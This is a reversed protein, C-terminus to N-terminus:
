KNPKDHQIIRKINYKPIRGPKGHKRSYKWTSYPIGLSDAAEKGYSFWKTTGDEFEVTVPKATRNLGPNNAIPNNERMRKSIKARSEKTNMPNWGEKFRLKTAISQAKKCREYAKDSFTRIALPSLRGSMLAFATWMKPCTPYVKTLLWHALYHERATLKVLNTGDNSGGYAKPVIHHKEYYDVTTPTRSKRTAILNNYIKLYNM